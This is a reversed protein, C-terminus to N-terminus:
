THAHRRQNFIEYLMVGTAVALNLSDTPGVMPIHVVHDCLSRLGLPLGRREEGMLLITPQRYNLACYDTSAQPSTGVVQHTHRQKWIALEAPTTRILRQSFLSGMTARVAAPAYPDIEDGVLIAGAAGVAESTRLITGLNGPARVRHLCVWSQENSPAVTALTAVTAVTALTALTDWHQQVVIGVGQPDDLLTLQHMVSPVVEIVPIGLQRQRHVLRQARAHHLMPRSVVIAEIRAQQKIAQFLPRLGEAYYLGTEDRVSRYHLSRIRQITPHAHDTILPSHRPFPHAAPAEVHQKAAVHSSHRPQRRDPEHATM